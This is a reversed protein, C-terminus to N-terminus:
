GVVKEGYVGEFDVRCQELVEKLEPDDRHNRTEYPDNELDM